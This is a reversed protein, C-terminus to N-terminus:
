GPPTPSDSGTTAPPSSTAVAVRLRRSKRHPRQRNPSPPTRSRPRSRVPHLQRTSAPSSAAATESTGVQAAPATTDAGPTPAAVAAVETPTVAAADSPPASIAVVATDSATSESGSATFGVVLPAVLTVIVALGGLRALLPDVGPHRTPRAEPELEWAEDGLDDAVDVDHSWRDPTWGEPDHRDAVPGREPRREGIPARDRERDVPQGTDDNPSASTSTAPGHTRAADSGGGLLADWWRGVSAGLGARQAAPPRRPTWETQEGWFEDHPGPTDAPDPRRTTM